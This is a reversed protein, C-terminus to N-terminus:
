FKESQSRHGESMDGDKQKKLAENSKASRSARSVGLEDQTVVIGTRSDAM